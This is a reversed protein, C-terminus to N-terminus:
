GRKAPLLRAREGEYHLMIRGGLRTDTALRIISAAIEDPTSMVPPALALWEDKTLAGKTRQVMPTDVWGPCICNVRIGHEVRLPALAATFRVVAAKSAAYVPSGHAGLGMGAGSAVNVVAGGRGAMEEIAIQTMRMLARLNIDLMRSWRTPDAAPFHVSSDDLGEVVGAVNFLMTVGGSSRALSFLEEMHREDTIDGPSAVSRGRGPAIESVVDALRVEDVDVLIVCAGASGLRLATAKGIGSAAGTVIAVDRSLDM